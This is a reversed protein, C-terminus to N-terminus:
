KNRFAFFLLLFITVFRALLDSIQDFVLKSYAAWQYNLSDLWYAGWYAIYSVAFFYLGVLVANEIYKKANNKIWVRFM